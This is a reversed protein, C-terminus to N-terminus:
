RASTKAATIFFNTGSIIPPYMLAPTLCIFASGSFVIATSVASNKSYNGRGALNRALLNKGLSCDARSLALSLGSSATMLYLGPRVLRQPLPNLGSRLWKLGNCLQFCHYQM